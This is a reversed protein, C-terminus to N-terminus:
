ISKGSLAQTTDFFQVDRDPIANNDEIYDCLSKLLNINQALAMSLGREIVPDGSYKEYAASIAQSTIKLNQIPQFWPNDEKLSTQKYYGALDTELRDIFYTQAKALQLFPIVGPQRMGQGIWIGFLFIAAVVMAGALAWRKRFSYRRQMRRGQIANLCLSSLDNPILPSRLENLFHLCDGIARAERCAEEDEILWEEVATKEDPTLEVCGGDREEVYRLLLERQNKKDPKM